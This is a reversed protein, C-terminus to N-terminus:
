SDLEVPPALKLGRKRQFFAEIENQFNNPPEVLSLLIGSIM